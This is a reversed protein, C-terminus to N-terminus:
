RSQGSVFDSITLARGLLAPAKLLAIFIGVDFAIGSRTPIRDRPADAHNSM